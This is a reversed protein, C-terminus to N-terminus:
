QNDVLLNHFELMELTAPERVDWCVLRQARRSIAAVVEGYTQCSDCRLSANDFFCLGGQPASFVCVTHSYRIPRLLVTVLVPNCDRNWRYLLEAALCSFGDCDDEKKAWTTQPYSLCDFLHLPGDMTWKVQRLCAAIEGLSSAPPLVTSLHWRECLRRRLRSWRYRGTRLWWVLVRDAISDM